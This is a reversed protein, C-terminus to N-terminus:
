SYYPPVGGSWQRCPLCPLTCFLSPLFCFVYNPTSRTKECCGLCLRVTFLTPQCLTMSAPTNIQLQASLCSSPATPHTLDLYSCAHTFPHLHVSRLRCSRPRSRHRLPLPRANHSASTSTSPPILPFRPPSTSSSFLSPRLPSPWFCTVM